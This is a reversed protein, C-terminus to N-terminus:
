AWEKLAFTNATSHTTIKSNIVGCLNLNCVLGSRYLVETNVKKEARMKSLFFFFIQSVFLKLTKDLAM